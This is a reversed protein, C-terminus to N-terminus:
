GTAFGHVAALTPKPLEFIASAMRGLEALPGTFFSDPKASQSATTMEKVDGGASFARGAGRVVLVRAADDEAVRSVAAVIARAMEANLANLAAPRNLRLTAVGSAVDLEVLRDTMGTKETCRPGHFAGRNYPITRGIIGELATFYRVESTVPMPPTRLDFVSSK